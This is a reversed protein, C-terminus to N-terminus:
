IRVRLRAVPEHALAVRLALALEIHHDAASDLDAVARLDGVTRHRHEERRLFERGRPCLAVSDLELLNRADESPAMMGSREFECRLYGLTALVLVHQRM